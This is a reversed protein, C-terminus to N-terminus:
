LVDVMPSLPRVLFPFEDTVDVRVSYKETVGTTRGTYSFMMDFIRRTNSLPSRRIEVASLSSNAAFQEFTKAYIEHYRVAMYNFARHEDTAGANDALQQIRMFLQEAAPAFEQHSIKEPKPIAQMLTDVDFSYTQDVVVIPLTLGNCMEPPAVPGRLGIVVDVDTSRPVPRVADILLELDMPDRPLLFYTEIGEITLVWCLQRALYRNERKSLVAQLTQQDTMGQTSSRATAQAFEKEAGLSPFRPQIRGLAYIFSPTRATRLASGGCTSCAAATEVQQSPLGGDPMNEQTDAQEM